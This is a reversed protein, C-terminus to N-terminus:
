SFRAYKRVFVPGYYILMKIFHSQFALKGFEPKLFKVNSSLKQFKTVIVKM